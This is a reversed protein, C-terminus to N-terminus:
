GRSGGRVTAQAPPASREAVPTEHRRGEVLLVVAGPLSAVLVLVGYVVATTVGLGAGLGAVAFTWAAMGERPGWGGIGLPLATAALVLLALPLMATVSATAGATRAAVLFTTTHGAVVVVSALLVGPWARTALLGHRLDSGVARRTRAWTSRGERPLTSGVLAVALALAALGAAVAPVYGRVPSPLLLLLTVSLVLQVVQGATREWAVARASRGVDGVDRGHRVARHVDGAVGFPLTLNLFQSRYYAAVAGPLPVTIGLGRSVLHWRWACSATTVAAIAVAWALSWGDVLRLGVVFPGAGLRWVLAAIVAAGLGLRVWTARM